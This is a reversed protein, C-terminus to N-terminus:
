EIKEVEKKVDKWVQEIPRNGDIEELLGKKRYYEVLPKTKERYVELREELVEETDDDRQILKGGCKDCTGEQDPPNYKTHYIEGCEKCIRRGTIREKINEKSANIHLVLGIEIIEELEQAQVKDRPADDLVFGQATDPKRLRKEFLDMVVEDPLLEGNKLYERVTKHDVEIDKHHRLIEGIDILPIGFNETIKEAQTGKGAGPPGLVIINKSM